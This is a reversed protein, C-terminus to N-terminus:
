YKMDSDIGTFDIFYYKEKGLMCVTKGFRQM